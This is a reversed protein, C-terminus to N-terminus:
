GEGAKGGPQKLGYWDIDARSMPEYHICPCQEGTDYLTVQCRWGDEHQAHAHYCASCPTWNWPSESM